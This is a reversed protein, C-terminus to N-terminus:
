GAQPFGAEDLAAEAAAKGREAVVFALDFGFLPVDNLEHKILVDPTPQHGYGTSLEVMRGIVRIVSPGDAQTFPLWQKVGSVFTTIGEDTLDATEMTTDSGVDSAVVSMGPHRHVLPGIPVNAALAGDVHLDDGIRLPPFLVPISISARLARWLPGRDHLSLRDKTLNTSVTTTDIWLDEVQASGCFNKCLETIRRGSTLSASPVTYDMLSNAMNDVVFQVQPERDYGRGYAVAVMAGASTGIVADVAIGRELLADIVGIHAMGRAGGGGLVLGVGRQTTLRAVRDVGREDAMSVHHHRSIKIGADALTDLSIATRTPTRGSAHDLVLEVRGNGEIADLQLSDLHERRIPHRESFLLILDALHIAVLSWKDTGNGAVLVLRDNQRELPLLDDEDNAGTAVAVRDGLEQYHDALRRAFREGSAQAEPANDIPVVVISIPAPSHPRTAEDSSRQIISAALKRLLQPHDSLLQDFNAGPLTLLESDRIARVTATRVSGTLLGMEGVPEGRGIEGRRRTGDPTDIFARLRGHVVLHFSDSPDGQALLEEGAAVHTSVFVQALADLEDDTFGEFLNVSKLFSIPDFEM